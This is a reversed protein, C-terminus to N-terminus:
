RRRHHCTHTGHHRRRPRRSIVCGFQLETTRASRRQGAARGKPFAVTAVVGDDQNELRLQGHLDEQVLSRVIQLGLSTPTDLSFDAPLPDGDDWIELSCATAAM